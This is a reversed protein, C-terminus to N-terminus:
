LGWSLSLRYAPPKPSLSPAPLTAPLLVFLDCSVPLCSGPRGSDWVEVCLGSVRRATPPCPPTLSRPISPGSQRPICCGGGGSHPTWPCLWGGHEKGGNGDSRHPWYFIAYRFFVITEWLYLRLTSFSYMKWTRTSQLGRTIPAFINWISVQLVQSRQKFFFFFFGFGLPLHPVPASPSGWPFDPRPPQLYWPCLCGRLTEAGRLADLGAKWSRPSYQQKNFELTDTPERRRQPPM